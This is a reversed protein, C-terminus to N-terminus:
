ASIEPHRGAWPRAIELAAAVGLLHDERLRRAALQVGFPLGDVVGLPLSIAPQGTWNYIQTYAILPLLMGLVRLNNTPQEHDVVFTGHPPPLYDVMPPTRRAVTPSLMLDLDLHEWWQDWTVCTKQHFEGFEVAQVGSLVGGFEALTWLVPGVDDQTVPRGIVREYADLTRAIGILAPGAPYGYQWDYTALDYRPPDVPVVTHGLQELLAAVESVVRVAEPDTDIDVSPATTMLGIRLGHAGTADGARYGPVPPFPDGPRRGELLPLLAASDRVTRTIVFEEGWANSVSNIASTHPGLSVRGRTPKLAVAGCLAAPMRLSGGGDNGHALAVMGAAVAAASGSSSAGTSYDTNWPNRPMSPVDLDDTGLVVGAQPTRSRGLFTFGATRLDEALYTTSTSVHGRERLFPLGGHHYPYGALELHYDKVLMPVGPFPASTAVTRAQELAVDFTRISVADLHPDVREVADIAAEVLEVPTAQGTHVLEAQATADLGSIEM